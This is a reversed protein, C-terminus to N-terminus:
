RAARFGMSPGSDGPANSLYLYMIGASLQSDWQGGRFFGRAAVEDASSYIRGIGQTSNWSGANSLGTTAPYPSPSITGRVVLNPWERWAYGGASIGPQNGTVTGATWEWVDGAMDWVVSGNNMTLTRLQNSPSINGTGSYGNGDNTDAVLAGVPNNDNHGSYIYGNGVSSGSWNSAYSLLNQSITLWEAETILHCGSCANQSYTISNTQTINSIPYGSATSVPQLNNAATCATVSNNYTNSGTNPATLGVSLNGTSACKAEYKMVCFDNTSYTGSGPVPVFGEPCSRGVSSGFVTTAIAPSTNDNISYSNNGNTITLHFTSPAVTTYSMTNSGSAKLCYNTDAPGTPCNDANLSVPYNGHMAYYLKLQKSASELDSQIASITARQTIGIYSVITIAALIGIVVIVVLLEVITFAKNYKYKKNAMYYARRLKLDGLLIM